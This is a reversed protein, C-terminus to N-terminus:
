ATTAICHEGSSAICSWMYTCVQIKYIDKTLGRLKNSAKDVVDEISGRLDKDGPKENGHTADIQYGLKSIDSDPSLTANYLKQQADTV